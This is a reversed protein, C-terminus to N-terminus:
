VQKEKQYNYVLYIVLGLVPTLIIVACWLIKTAIKFDKRKIVSILSFAAVILWVLVVMLYINLVTSLDDM